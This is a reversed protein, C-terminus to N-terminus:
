MQQVAELNFDPPLVELCQAIVGMVRDTESSSAEGGGGGGGGSASSLLSSFMSYTDTQDQLCHCLLYFSLYPFICSPTYLM